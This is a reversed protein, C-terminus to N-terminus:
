RARHKRAFRIAVVFLMALLGAGILKGATNGMVVYALAVGFIVLFLFADKVAAVAFIARLLGPTEDDGAHDWYRSSVLYVYVGVLLLVAVGIWGPSM